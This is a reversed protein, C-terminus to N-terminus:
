VTVRPEGVGRLVSQDLAAVSNTVGSANLLKEQSENLRTRGDCTFPTM